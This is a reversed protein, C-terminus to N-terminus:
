QQGFILKDFIDLRKKKSLPIGNSINDVESSLFPDIDNILISNIDTEHKEIRYASLDPHNCIDSQHNLFKNLSVRINARYSSNLEWWNVAGENWSLGTTGGLAKSYKNLTVKIDKDPKIRNFAHTDTDQQFTVMMLYKSFRTGM